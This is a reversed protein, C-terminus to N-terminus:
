EGMIIKPDTSPYEYYETYVVHWQHGDWGKYKRIEEL